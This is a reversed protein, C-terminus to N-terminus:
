QPKPPPEGRSPLEGYFAVAWWWRWRRHDRAERGRDRASCQLLFGRDRQNPDNGKTITPRLQRDWRLSHQPHIYRFLAKSIIHAGLVSASVSQILYPTSPSM